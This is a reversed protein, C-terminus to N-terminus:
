TKLSRHNTFSEQETQIQIPKQNILFVSTNREELKETIFKTACIKELEVMSSSEFPNDAWM